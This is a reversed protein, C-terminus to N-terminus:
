EVTLSTITGCTLHKQLYSNINFKKETTLASKCAQAFTNGLKFATLLAYEGPTLKELTIELHNRILLIQEGGTTLDITEQDSSEPQCLQYIQLIPYQFTFLQATPNLHFKIQEYQEPPITTLTHLDFIDSAKGHFAQHYAWELQAVEPLYPLTQAPAFTQLFEAFKHGYERLDGSTSPHQQIYKKATGIFFDKGVIKQVCPFVAHLANTLTIFVNNRYIQLRQETTLGNANINHVLNKSEHKRMADYFYNQLDHLSLM